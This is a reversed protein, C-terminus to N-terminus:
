LHYSDVKTSVHDQEATQLATSVDSNQTTAKHPYRLSEGSYQFPDHVFLPPDNEPRM